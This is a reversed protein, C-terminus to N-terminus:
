RSAVEHLVEPLLCFYTKPLDVKSEPDVWRYCALPPLETSAVGFGSLRRKLNNAEVLQDHLIQQDAEVKRREADFKQVQQIRHAQLLLLAVCGIHLASQIWPKLKM